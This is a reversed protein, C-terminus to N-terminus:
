QKEDKTIAREPSLDIALPEELTEDIVIRPKVNMMPPGTRPRFAQPLTRLVPVSKADLESALQSRDVRWAVAVAALLTLWLLDCITFKM